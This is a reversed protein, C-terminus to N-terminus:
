SMRSIFFFYAGSKLGKEVDLSDLVIKFPNPSQIAASVNIIITKDTEREPQSRNHAIIAGSKKVAAKMM